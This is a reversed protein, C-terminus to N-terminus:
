PSRRRLSNCLDVPPLMAEGSGRQKKALRGEPGRRRPARLRRTRTAPGAGKTKALPTWHAAKPVDGLTLRPALSLLLDHTITKRLASNTHQARTLHPPAKC